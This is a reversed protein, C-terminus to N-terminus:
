LAPPNVLCARLETTETWGCKKNAQRECTATRYCAYEARFECTTMMGSVESAEGCIQGSCGGVMCEGSPAPQEYDSSIDETFLRGGADRCQRPYSEMVPNGASVCEEFNTITVEPVTSQKDSRQLIVAIAGVAMLGIVAGYWVRQSIMNMNSLIVYIQAPNDKQYLKM